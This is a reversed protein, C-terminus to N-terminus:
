SSIRIRHYFSFLHFNLSQIIALKSITHVLFIAEKGFFVLPRFLFLLILLGITVLFNVSLTLLPYNLTRLEGATLMWVLILLVTTYVGPQHAAFWNKLGLQLVNQSSTALIIFTLTLAIVTGTSVGVIGWYTGLFTFLLVFVAYTTQLLASLYVKGSGRLLSDSIKYGLRPYTGLSLVQLPFILDNWRSGLLISVIEPSFIFLAASMPLGILATLTLGRNYLRRLQLPDNQARAFASFLVKDEIPSYLAAPIQMIQYARSYLGLSTVGLFRGAIFNDGQTAFYTALKALSLGFGFHFLDRSGSIGITPRFNSRTYLFILLTKIIMQAVSGIILSWYNMGFSALIISALGFGVGYSILNSLAIKRFHFQRILLSEPVISLGQIIFSSSLVMIVQSLQPMQFFGEIASSSFWLVCTLCLSIIVSLTLGASLHNERLTPLQVIAPGIGIMGFTKVFSVVVLAAALVGFDAPNLLRALIALIILRLIAEIVAGFSMWAGGSLMQDGFTQNQGKECKASTM